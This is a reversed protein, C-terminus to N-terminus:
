FCARLPCLPALPDFSAFSFFLFLSLSRLVTLDPSPRAVLPRRLRVGFRWFWDDYQQAGRRVFSAARRALTGRTIGRGSAPRHKTQYNRSVFLTHTHTHASALLSANEALSDPM